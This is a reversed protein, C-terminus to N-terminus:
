WTTDTDYMTKNSSKNSTCHAMGCLDVENTKCYMVIVMICSYGPFSATNLQISSSM